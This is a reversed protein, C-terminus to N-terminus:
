YNQENIKRVGTLIELYQDAEKRDSHKEEQSLDAYDTGMQREWHKAWHEPITVNGQEDTKSLAFLYRMWGTWSRHAQAAFKERLESNM